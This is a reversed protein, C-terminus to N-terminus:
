HRPWKSTPFERLWSSWWRLRAGPSRLFGGLFKVEILVATAHAFEGADNKVQVASLLMKLSENSKRVFTFPVDKLFRPLASSEAYVRSEETLFDTSKRGIVESRRYGLKELWANNVAVLRGARDISHMIVPAIELLSGYLADRKM